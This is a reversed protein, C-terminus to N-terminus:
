VDPHRRHWETAQEYAHAIRCLMVEGRDRGVLQLSLPAGDANFGCPVSITPTGAFDAPATFRQIGTLPPDFRQAISVLARGFADITDYAMGDLVPIPTTTSPCVLADVTGLMAEYRATFDDRREMAAAYEADSVAAGNALVEGFYPGYESARLPYHDAHARVAEYFCITGWDGFPAEPVEVEVTEAGLGVLIALAEEVAGSVAPDVGEAAYRRDYGLRLGAVGGDLGDLLRPAPGPLSTPDNPDAGAIAELMIAADAVTRTMPGVHDLSGALELVGYRSVLGWTPKIGVIGCQASPFRISGGTDSGLSGFCLGAATAVGSGSSSVGPWLGEDWPNVPIDFDPHYAAMAGETLNLKGLLVAGAGTLRAVVTADYDPVFDALVPTAGMTRVGRTYCLDKVAIPVGHLPGRYNGAGIERDAAAAAARAQDAMVTAYSKLRGDIAAIRDLLTETLETSSLERAEIRRAADRLSLYHLPVDSAGAAGGSAQSSGPRSRGSAARSGLFPAAAGAGLAALVARRSLTAKM